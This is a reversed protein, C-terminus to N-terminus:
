STDGNSLRDLRSMARKAERATHDFFLPFILTRIKASTQAELMREKFELFPKIMEVTSKNFAAYNTQDLKATKARDYQAQFTREFNDAQARQTALEPGPMLMAFFAAHELMVDCWFLNEARTHVAADASKDPPLFMPKGTQRA